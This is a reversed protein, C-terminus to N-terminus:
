ASLFRRFWQASLKPSRKFTNFDIYVLGFRISYGDLWEFNDSLSWGFYGKVKVKEHIAKEVFALHKFHFKIRFDDKLAVELTKNPDNVESAGNDTIYIIPDNYHRKIHHLYHRIGEPYSYQWSGGLKEGIPVGSANTYHLRVRVDNSYSKQRQIEHSININSVFYSTYYNFGLFDISGRM